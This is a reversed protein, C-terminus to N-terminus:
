DDVAVGSGAALRFLASRKSTVALYVPPCEGLVIGAPITASFSLSAAAFGPGTPENDGLGATVPRVQLLRVGDRNWAWEIDVEHGLRGKLTGALVTISDYPPPVSEAAALDCRAANV